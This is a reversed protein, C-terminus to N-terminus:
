QERNNTPSVDIAEDDLLDRKEEAMKASSEREEKEIRARELKLNTYWYVGILTLVIGASSRVTAPRKFFLYDSLLVVITKCHGLINYSLASTRGIVLFISVNVLFGIFGTSSIVSLNYPNFDFFWISSLDNMSWNDFIPVFPTIFLAALPSVYTQLQLANCDLSRQLTGSWIQYFSTVIVGAIAYASGVVNLRFDTVTTAIVGLCVPILSIKLSNDLYKQYLLAEIVVVTPTTMVKMVQYFGVSNHQLSLNTLCIFGMTGAALKWVDRLPLKKIEFVGLKATILLLLFTCWLHFCTLTTAYRFGLTDMAYKNVVVISTSSFFNLAMASVIRVDINALTSSPAAMKHSPKLSPLSDHSSASDRSRHYLSHSRVIHKTPLQVPPTFMHPSAVRAHIRTPLTTSKPKTLHYITAISIFPANKKAYNHKLGRSIVAERATFWAVGHVASCQM